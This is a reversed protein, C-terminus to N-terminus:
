RRKAKIKDETELADKWVEQLCYMSKRYEDDSCYAM